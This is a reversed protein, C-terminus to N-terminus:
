RATLSAAGVGAELMLERAALVRPHAEGLARVLRANAENMSQGAEPRGELALVWGLYLQANATRWHEPGLSQEYTAVSNRLLREAEGLRGMRGLAEARSREAQATHPHDAGFATTRIAIAQRFAADAKDWDRTKLYLAGLNNYATATEPHFAGRTRRTIDAAQLYVEAAEDYKGPIDSLANGLNNLVIGMEAHEEGYVRRVDEVLERTLPEARAPQGMIVLTDALGNKAELTMEGLPGEQEVYMRFADGLLREAVPLNGQAARVRGLVMLARARVSAREGTAVSTAELTREALTAAEDLETRRRLIEALDLRARHWVDTQMGAAQLAREADRALVTARELDGQERKLMSQSLLAQAYAAPDEERRQERIAVAADLLGTAQDYAGLGLYATGAAELLAARVEPRQADGQVLLRRVGADLLERASMSKSGTRAPNALEFIGAAFGTVRRAVRAEQNARDREAAADVAFWAMASGFLLAAVFASGLMGVAFRHRRAFKRVRYLASPPGALVPEDDAHRQLDAALAAPSDYRHQRDKELAKLVIWDLDGRLRAALAAPTSRCREAHAVNVPSTGAAVESPPRTECSLIENLVVAPNMADRTVEYPRSGTLLEYLLIGLSYVDTRADVDLPSLQAQEPSMYDPTGLLNGHRTYVDSEGRATTTAKAIGFDIIKPVPAGDMEAVLINSPKLDRHIIGRLHAHQVGGCVQTFLALRAEVDLRREDAYLTAPIGPVYEMAFYPRGDATTGADFIRAINPHALVALAQRELEFRGIVERTALGFKLIKLAVRRRVPAQQDALFVEGIAGEGIRQLIRYDGVQHPSALRPFEHVDYDLVSDPSEAHARLLGRVQERLEPDGCSDLLQEREADSAAELCADFLRRQSDVSV